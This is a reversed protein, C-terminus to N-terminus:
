WHKGSKQPMRARLILAFACVLFWNIAACIVAYENVTISFPGNFYEMQKWFKQGFLGLLSNSLILEVAIPLLIIFGTFRVVMRISRKRLVGRVISSALLFAWSVLIAYYVLVPLVKAGTDPSLVPNNYEIIPRFFTGQPFLCVAETVSVIAPKLASLLRGHDFGVGIQYGEYTITALYAMFVVVLLIFAKLTLFFWNKVARAYSDKVLTLPAIPLAFVFPYQLFPIIIAFVIRVISAEGTIGTWLYKTLASIPWLLFLAAFLFIGTCIGFSIVKAKLTDEASLSKQGKTGKRKSHEQHKKLLTRQRIVRMNIEGSSASDEEEPKRTFVQAIGTGSGETTKAYKPYSETLGKDFLEQEREKRNDLQAKDLASVLEADVYTKSAEKRTQELLKNEIYSIVELADAPRNEPDKELLKLILANLWVPLDSRLNVPPIPQAELHKCMLEPPSDGTFPLQSTVLEYSLVGLAYLDAKPTIDRGIWVEPAMYATSGVVENHNTMDSVGPRAVGFDTIKISGDERVIINGPKLDRHVIDMEHIASLGYSIEILLHAVEIPDLKESRIRQKLTLGEAYEMTFYLQGKEQGVDFTRVINHHTVRRTLQVERLFRKVHNEDRCLEHHLIKLAVVEDALVTDKVLYVDGMGGRGLLKEIRYRNAFLEGQDLSAELTEM